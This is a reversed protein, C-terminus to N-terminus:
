FYRVVSNRTKACSLRRFRGCVITLSHLISVHVIFETIRKSLCQHTTHDIFPESQPTYCLSRVQTSQGDDQIRFLILELGGACPSVAVVWTATSTLKAPRDQHRAVMGHDSKQKRDSLQQNRSTPHGRQRSSTDTSTCNSRPGVLLNLRPDL